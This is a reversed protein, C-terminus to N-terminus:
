EDTFSLLWIGNVRVLTLDHTYEEGNVNETINVIVTDNSSVSTSNITISFTEGGCYGVFKAQADKISLGESESIRTVQNEVYTRTDSSLYKSYADYNGERLAAECARITATPSSGDSCGEFVMFSLILVLVCCLSKKM